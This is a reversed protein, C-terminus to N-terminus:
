VAGAAHWGARKADRESCFWREGKSVDVYTKDYWPSWPAHYIRKGSASINGKIACGNPAAQKAHAWRRARYDWPAEAKGGSWVGVKRVRAAREEAKYTTSYKVFAWAHGNKVMTANINTGDSHCTAILRGYDDYSNGHCHLPKGSVLKSLARTAARGCRWTGVLRRPCTQGPEPTDIGELRIRLSNIDLTDGDVVRAPGYVVKAHKKGLAGSVVGPAPLTSNTLSFAAGCSALILAVAVSGQRPGKPWYERM